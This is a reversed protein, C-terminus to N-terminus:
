FKETYYLRVCNRKRSHCSRITHVPVHYLWDISAEGLCCMWAHWLTHNVKFCMCMCNNLVTCSVVEQIVMIVICHGM